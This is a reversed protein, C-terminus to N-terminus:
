VPESGYAHCHCKSYQVAFLLEISVYMDCRIFADRVNKCIYCTVLTTSYSM